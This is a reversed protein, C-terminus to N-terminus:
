GGEVKRSGIGNGQVERRIQAHKQKCCTQSQHGPQSRTAGPEDPMPGPDAGSVSPRLFCAPSMPLANSSTTQRRGPPLMGREEQLLWGERSPAETASAFNFSPELSLSDSKREEVQLGFAQRRIFAPNKLILQQIVKGRLAPDFRHRKARVKGNSMLLLEGGSITGSPHSSAAFVIRPNDRGSEVENRRIVEGREPDRDESPTSERQRCPLSPATAM